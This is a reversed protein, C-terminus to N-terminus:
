RRDHLCATAESGHRNLDDPWIMTSYRFEITNGCCDSQIIEEPYWDSPTHTGPEIIQLLPDAPNFGECILHGYRGQFRQTRREVLFTPQRLRPIGNRWARVPQI